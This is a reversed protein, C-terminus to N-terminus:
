QHNLLTRILAQDAPKPNLNLTDSGIDTFAITGQYLVVFGASVPRLGDPLADKHSLATPFLIPVIKGSPSEVTIYKLLHPGDKKAVSEVSKM